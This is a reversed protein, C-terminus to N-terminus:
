KLAQVSPQLWSTVFDTISPFLTTLLGLLPGIGFTILQLWFQSGLEGPSTNTIYSLTTDRHMQAYVLIVIGGVVAFVILFVIGLLPLPDFPYSAVAFTTAVFLFLSGLVITRIRGLVNQIFGLYPLVVFEEAAQVHAPVGTLDFSVASGGDDDKGKNADKRIILSETERQWAPGLIETVIVGATAALDEQYARMPELNRDPREGREVYWLAFTTARKRCRAVQERAKNRQEREKTGRPLSDEKPVWAELQNELHRLSELQRSLVRYREALTHGSVAWVSGWCLGKLSALTRRLPLRDLATLLVRLEKWTRWFQVSDGLVLSMCLLLWFFMTIGFSKEGLTRVAIDELSLCFICFAAVVAGALAWLHHGGLPIAQDEVRKGMKERSFMPWLPVRVRNPTAPLDKLKPLLPRDDGFLALGRLTFWFWMYLGGLLLVQPLLPSVGSIIHTSRWYAPIRNALTFSGSVYTMYAYLMVFLAFFALVAGSVRRHWQAREPDVPDASFTGIGYNAKCAWAGLGLMLALWVAEVVQATPALSWTMLGTSFATVVGAIAPLLSGVAILVAHQRRGIPAFYAVRFAATCPAVSGKRCWQLHALGWGLCLILITLLESEITLPSTNEKPRVATPQLLSRSQIDGCKTDNYHLTYEDLVAVPWFQHHGVVSIWTAPREGEPPRCPHAWVPPAYNEIAARSPGLLERTAIYLGEAADLGFVPFTRSDSEISPTWEQQWTLLPYTSMTLVGRLSSGEGGRRFLLDSGDIVIRAGPLVRRFFQSLFIQDLSNTSRLVIFQVHQSKMVDTIGVLSSEQALPTLQGGYNRVSDHESSDPESLDGRLSTSSSSGGSPPKGASLISQEQYASRLTAIDRPYSLHVAGPCPVEDEPKNEQGGPKKGEKERPEKTAAGFATEDESLLAVRSSSYGQKEIFTCFRQIMLSDGELFTRFTGLRSRGMFDKFWNYSEESSVSGSYIQITGLGALESLDEARLAKALSPVSGSFTPGLILLERKATQARIRRIWDLANKFETADIGGTPQEAVVFVILGKSFPDPLGEKKTTARRFTLIGPQGEQAKLEEEANHQDDLLYYEKEADWPFWSSNYSYNEDSAARQIAEIMRDFQLPLHTSIPNPATAILFRMGEDTSAAPLTNTATPDQYCSDPLRWQAAANVFPKLREVIDDCVNNEKPKAKTRVTKKANEPTETGAGGSAGKWSINSVGFFALAVTVLAIIGANKKM